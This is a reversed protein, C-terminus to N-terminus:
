VNHLELGLRILPTYILARLIDLPGWIELKGIVITYDGGMKYPDWCYVYYTGTEELKEEFKPGEYYWKGGFPEYFALRPDDPGVNERVIAGYGDPIDFPLTQNPDPLGPGVLAYWPLFNETYNLVVPVILEIYMNLPRIVRIKYVDIDECPNVGDYELWSYFAKSQTVLKRVIFPKEETFDRHEFYPVHAIASGSFIVVFSVMLVLFCLLLVINKRM